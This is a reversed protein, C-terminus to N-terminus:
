IMLCHVTSLRAPLRKIILGSANSLYGLVHPERKALKLGDSTQHSVEDLARQKLVIEDPETARPLM